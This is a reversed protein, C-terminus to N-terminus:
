ARRPGRWRSGRCSPRPPSNTKSTNSFSPRTSFARRAMSWRRFKSARAPPPLPGTSSGSGLAQPTEVDFALGKERLAIKVKQAYSSLPHEYLLM